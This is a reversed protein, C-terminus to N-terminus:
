DGSVEGEYPPEFNVRTVNTVALQLFYALRMSTKEDLKGKAVRRATDTIAAQIANADDLPPLEFQEEMTQTMALHMNCYQQGKTKPARGLEGSAKPYSCRPARNAKELNEKLKTYVDYKANGFQEAREEAEPQARVLKECASFSQALKQFARGEDSNEWQQRLQEQRERERRADRMEVAKHFDDIHGRRALRVKEEEETFGLANERPDWGM